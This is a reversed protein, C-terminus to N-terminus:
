PSDSNSNSNSNSLSENDNGPIQYGNNEELNFNNDGRFRNINEYYNVRYAHNRNLARRENLYNNNDGGIADLDQFIRMNMLKVIRFLFFIMIGMSFFTFTFFRYPNHTILRLNKKQSPTFNKFNVSLNPSNFNWIIKEGEIDYSKILREKKTFIRIIENKDSFFTENEKKINNTSNINKDNDKNDLFRQNKKEINIKDFFNEKKAIVQINLIISEFSNIENDIFIKMDNVENEKHSSCRVKLNNNDNNNNTNISNNLGNKKNFIDDEKYSWYCISKIEELNIKIDFALFYFYKKNEIETINDGNIDSMINYNFEIGPQYKGFGRNTVRIKLALIIEDSLCHKLEIDKLNENELNMKQNRNFYMDDFKNRYMCPFYEASLLENKIYFMSKQLGYLGARLNNKLVDFTVTKNPYFVDSNKEGNGLEPSFSLIKKATLFWDTADGVTKYGITSAANGFKFNKPFTAEKEFEKYVTYLLSYNKKLLEESEDKTLYNFPTIYLNGWTHYNFAIKIDPHTDIFNKINLIEPESFPYKGMYEERCQGYKYNKVKKADIYDYNRNLDVGISENSCLSGNFRHRNKRTNMNRVKKTKSYKLCNYKYTDINIMPLFYINTSSLFLHLYFKPLSLLHFILYLNMMMSVPERGHHMGSFFIGSKNYLIPDIYFTENNSTNNDTKNNPILIENFKIKNDILNAKSKKYTLPSKMIILPMDNEEYTKGISYIDLYEPFDKKLKKLLSIYQDYSLYADNIDLKNLYIEILEQFSKREKHSFIISFICILIFFLFMKNM